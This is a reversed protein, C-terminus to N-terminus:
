HSSTKSLLNLILVGSMILVIGIIGWVDLKQDFVFWAVTTILVIGVGSWIAYAVGVPITKLTLSLCYFAVVYGVVVVISAVPKTFGESSKLASTAIVEATIAIFLIIWNNM